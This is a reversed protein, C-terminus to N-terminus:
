KKLLTFAPYKSAKKDFTYTMQCDAEEGGEAIFVDTFDVKHTELAKLTVEVRKPHEFIYFPNLLLQQLQEIVQHNPVGYGHTMVWFTECLVVSTIYFRSKCEIIRRELSRAAAVQEPAKQDDYLLRVLVNTDLGVM